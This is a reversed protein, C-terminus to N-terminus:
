EKGVRRWLNIAGILTGVASLMFIAFWWGAVDRAYHRCAVFAFGSFLMEAEGVFTAFVQWQWENPMISKKEGSKIRPNRM